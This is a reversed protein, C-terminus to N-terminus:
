KIRPKLGIEKREMGLGGKKKYEFSVWMYVILGFRNWQCGKKNLVKPMRYKKNGIGSNLLNQFRMHKLSDMMDFKRGLNVLDVVM